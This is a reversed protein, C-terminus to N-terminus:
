RDQAKLGDAAYIEAGGNVYIRDGSKLIPGLGPIGGISVYERMGPKGASTFALENKSINWSSFLYYGDRMDNDERKIYTIQLMSRYDHHLIIERTHLDTFVNSHEAAGTVLWSAAASDSENFIGTLNVRHSSLAYSYPLDVSSITSQGTIEFTLGSTIIFYPALVALATYKLYNGNILTGAQHKIRSATWCALEWVSQAGTVCFPALTILAIHYWRTMNLIYAFWPIVICAALLMSGVFSLVMYEPSFKLGSPKIILRLCGVVILVQTIYQLIRFIKGPLTVQSFDMGLAASILADGQGAFQFATGHAAGANQITPNLGISNIVHLLTGTIYNLNSGSAVLGYWAFSLTFVIIFSIAIFRVPLSSPVPDALQHPLGGTKCTINNWITIFPRSRIVPVLMIIAALYAFNIFGLTYHSVTICVAFLTLLVFRTIGSIKRDIIVLISLVFFLEAIQQRCLGTLELSFTPVAMFFFAAVFAPTRGTQIRFIRYLVMPVLSFLLPYVAKFVWIGDLHLMQAYVPGAIVISLCSNITGPIDYNWLGNQATQQYFQYEFYIDSGILFPSILTTQYLLVLSITFIALPYAGEPIGWKFAGMCFYIAVAIVFIILVANSGTKELVLVGLIVMLLLLLLLLGSKIDIHYQPEGGGPQFQRDRRYAVVMLVAYLISLSTVVPLPTIPQAMGLAPLVLNISAGCAMVCALSLGAAYAIAEVTNIGHVRLIRLLLIGPVFTIFIFGTVQNLVPIFIDWSGLIVLVLQLVTTLAAFWLSTKLRWDAPSPM